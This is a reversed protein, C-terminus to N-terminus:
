ALLTEHLKDSFAAPPLRDPGLSIAGLAAKLDERGQQSAQYFRARRARGAATFTTMLAAFTRSVRRMRRLRETRREAYPRLASQTWDNSSLLLESLHRVDSMALSLGQGDVPDDYGGADGILVVGEAYPEDCWSQEGGFTACPGAPTIDALGMEEPIARLRAFANVMRKPGGPGAWRTAQENALCTYLRLHGCGQPFVYFQVDGEVGITYHDSLWRSGGDVLLGAIVHTAALIKMQIGAQKRVLSTRGDAGTTLRPRLEKETGNRYAITPRRGTQARVSDIGRELQAGCRLAEDALAQCSKPRLACRVPSM